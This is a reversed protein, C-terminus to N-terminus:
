GGRACAAVRVVPLAPLAAARVRALLRDPSLRLGLTRVVRAGAEGGLVLGILRLVEELRITHRAYPAVVAPLREVFIQRRCASQDCFFRRVHLELRVAIGMWPLDAVRRVYRSHVRASPQRCVPCCAQSSTTTVRAIIGRADAALGLLHLHTPDPVLSDPHPQRPASRDLLSPMDPM